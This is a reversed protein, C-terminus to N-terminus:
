CVGEATTATPRADAPPSMASVLEQWLPALAREWVLEHLEARDAVERRAQPTLDLLDLVARAFGDPDSAVSCGPTIAAPLGDAVLPTVVTPLGAAVTELVKTQTGRAIWLPAVAVGSDWLYGRVDDVTGTIEITSDSRCAAFLRRTPRAGVVTFRADPRQQRILPWVNHVFWLVGQENPIYDMVGCFVVRANAPPAKPARFFDIDVGVPVVAIRAQPSVRRAIAAERDNVVLTAKAAALARAEFARLRGAERAFIWRMPPGAHAALANWKESDVDVLDLVFPLRDLPPNLVFRAVGSCYALVVDPMSRSIMSDLQQAIGPSDLMVHTLPRDGFLAPLSRTLGRLRYVRAVEVSAAVERLVAARDAEEQDHVLSLLHVEARQALFQLIHFARTRDGRNPPYPLRHTLFLIRV